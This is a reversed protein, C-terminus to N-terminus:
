RLRVIMYTGAALVILTPLAAAVIPPFNYALGAQGILQSVIYFCIGIIFGIFVRQGVGVSRLGGFIFPVALLMMAAITFPAFIKTWFSLQYHRADLGNELMYDIYEYLKWIALNEPSVSVVNVMDPKLLTQWSMTPMSQTVIGDATIRKHVVRQLLWADNQYDASAASYIERLSHYDDFMYLNIGVLRGDTDVRRVHIYTNGDRAWLGYDTNLSIKSDMARVRNFKAYQVSPPAIVEGIFIAVATILLATKLVAVILRMLSMGAARMATIEHHGALAGLGLMTGLVAVMPFLLYLKEPMSLVIFQMAQWITYHFRGVDTIEGAFSILSDLAIIVLMASVIGLAVAKGIYRDLIEM